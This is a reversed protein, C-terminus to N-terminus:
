KVPTPLWAQLLSGVITLAGGVKAAVPATVGFADPQAVVVGVVALGHNKVWGWFPSYFPNWNISM